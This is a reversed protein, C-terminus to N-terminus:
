LWGADVSAAPLRSTRAWAGCALSLAVACDDRGCNNAPDRKTLRFSGSSDNEVMASALSATMLARSSSAVSLPGDKAMKRTARIDFASESWRTVREAVPVDAVVDRLENLRFRDCIVGVPTGWRALVMEWLQAPPQVRLGDAIRLSGIDVLMQYTGKPVIDRREQADIDPIGPALAITEMRGSEWVAVAASWARGGGLDLAVIPQGDPLPVARSEVRKWDDVSLLMQSEDASPLNLRYSLFRAKLRSDRRAEDRESLLKKRFSASIATLPNARRITKWSDWNSLDGQLSTVHTSGHSGRKILDPWWGRYAPALTGIYLCKLPSGPKGQATELADHMLQGGNVHWAGPEDAIAWPCNVLGMATKGNSGVVRLRTNTDRHLIAVRTASDLFRYGGLPELTERAFRFCIRAQEISAALLVSETGPRFLADNPDLIRSILHGALWSKGNGRPLSLCATDVDPSTAHKIFDRQFPRLRMM